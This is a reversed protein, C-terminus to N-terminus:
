GWALLPPLAPLRYRSLRGTGDRELGDSLCSPALSLRLGFPMPSRDPLAAIVDEWPFPDFSSVLLPVLRAAFRSALRSALRSAPRFASRCALLNGSIVLSIVSPVSCGLWALLMAPRFPSRSSPVLRHHSSPLSVAFRPPYRCTLCAVGDSIIFSILPFPAAVIGCDFHRCSMSDM